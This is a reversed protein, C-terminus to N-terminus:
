RADAGPSTRRDITVTVRCEWVIRLRGDGSEAREAEMLRGYEASWSGGPAIGPALREVTARIDDFTAGRVDFEAFIRAPRTM